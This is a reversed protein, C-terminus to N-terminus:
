WGALPHGNFHPVASNRGYGGYYGSGGYYGPGGSYGYSDYPSGYYAPGGGYYYERRNQTAAIALGTGVIGAFAAAAAGGGGGRRYHRRQASFDTVAHDAALSAGHVPANTAALAAPEFATLVTAAVAAIAVARGTSSLLTKRTFM